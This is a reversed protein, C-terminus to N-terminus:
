INEQPEDSEPSRRENLESAVARGAKQTFFDRAM